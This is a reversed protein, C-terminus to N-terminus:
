EIIVKGELKSRQILGLNSSDSMGPPVNSLLIFESERLKGKRSIEYTKLPPVIKSVFYYKKGMAKVPSGNVDIFWKEKDGEARTLKFIDGPVAKVIKVVPEIPPSIRYWVLDDKKIPNCKYYNKLVEYPQGKEIIGSMLKDNMIRKLRKDVCETIGIEDFSKRMLYNSILVYGMCSIGVGLLTVALITLLKDKHM